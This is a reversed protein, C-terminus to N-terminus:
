VCTGHLHSHPQVQTAVVRDAGLSDHLQGHADAGADCEGHAAHEKEALCLQAM